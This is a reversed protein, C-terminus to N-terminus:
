CHSASSNLKKLFRQTMTESIYDKGSLLLRIATIITEAAEHKTIYGGAGARFARKVYIPEDHMTLILVPLFPYQSKIKKTLQIGGTGDLSIDVIALDVQQKELAELAQEANEAEASVVLDPEQNILLILGQRVVTHDDVVLIKTKNEIKKHQEKKDNM